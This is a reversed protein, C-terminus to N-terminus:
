RKDERQMPPSTFTHEVRYHVDYDEECKDCWLTTASGDDWDMEWLDRNLSGCRPCRAACDSEFEGSQSADFCTKCLHDPQPELIARGYHETRCRPCKYRQLSM